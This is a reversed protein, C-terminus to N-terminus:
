QIAFNNVAKDVVTIVFQEHLRILEQRVELKDLVINYNLNPWRIKVTELREKIRQKMKEKWCILQREFNDVREKNCWKESYKEVDEFLSKQIQSFSVRPSERFKAGKSM